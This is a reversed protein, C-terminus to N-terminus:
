TRYTGYNEKPPQTRYTRTLNWLNPNPEIPEMPEPPPQTRYTRSLNSLNPNPEIPEMPELPPQTRYTRTLNPNPEIPKTSRFLGFIISHKVRHCQTGSYQSDTTAYLYAGM